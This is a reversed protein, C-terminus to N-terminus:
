FTNKRYDRPSYGTKEKFCKGFHSVQHFGVNESIVGIPLDTTTLLEAAKSLRCEMLYKYPTTQLCAKFCRLCESKGVNGSKALSELSIDEAYHNAIYNLFKQMRISVINEQQQPPLLINKRFTLWLTSLILLIEYPYFETKKEEMETLKQLLNLVTNEWENQGTFHYFELGENESISDVFVGAPSGFYFKLFYDPFVFSKYHCSMFQKVQHLINKNIFIGQGASVEIRKNLTLFKIKGDMVYIFQFDEHWHMVQFGPNQPFSKQNVVDLVLYPFDTNEMLNVSNIYNSKNTEM